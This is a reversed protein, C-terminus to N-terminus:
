LATLKVCHPQTGLVAVGLRTRPEIVKGVKASETSDIATVRWQRHSRGLSPFPSLKPDDVSVSACTVIVTMVSGRQRIVAGGKTIGILLFRSM